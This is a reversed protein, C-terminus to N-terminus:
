SDPIAREQSRHQISLTRRLLERFRYKISSLSLGEIEMLLDLPRFEGSASVRHLDFLDSRSNIYGGYASFMAEYGCFKVVDVVDPRINIEKGFPYSFWVVPKGVIEELDKKSQRLEAFAEERSCHGLDVHNVTHSGVESGKDTLARVDHGKLNDLRFPSDVDHPYVRDTGIFGSNLFFCAPIQAQTLIASANAYFDRYCDDFQLCLLNSSFNVQSKLKLLLESTQIVSYYKRIVAIHEAFREVDTTMADETLDNVRHYLLVCARGKRTINRFMRVLYFIGSYFITLYVITKISYFLREERNTKLGRRREVERRHRRTPSTRPKHGSVVQPHGVVKGKTLQTVCRRLLDCSLLGLKKELTTPSDQPHIPVSDEGIIDGTDLGDDIFHITVGASPQDEYLEWFGPPLGRYEPVKGMHVNICGISPVAFTSRKLIRTGIVVGLDPKLSHLTEVALPGNLNGVKLVPVNYSRTLDSMSFAKDPFSQRLLKEVEQRPIICGALYDLFGKFFEGLRFPVYSLGERRINRRLNRFRRKLSQHESDLLIAILQVGSLNALRLGVSRTAVSDRGTLLAVRLKRKEGM